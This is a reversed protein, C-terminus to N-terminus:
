SLFPELERIEAVSPISPNGGAIELIAETYRTGTSIEDDNNNIILALPDTFNDM